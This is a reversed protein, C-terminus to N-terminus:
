KKTPAAGPKADDTFKKVPTPKVAGNAHTFMMNSGNIGPASPCSLPVETIENPALPFRVRYTCASVEKQSAYFYQDVKLGVIPNTSVNKVKVVSVLEGKVPKPPSPIIEIFATGKVPPRMRAKMVEESVPAPPPPTTPAAAAGKAPTTTKPTSAASKSSQAFAATSLGLCCVVAAVTFAARKM